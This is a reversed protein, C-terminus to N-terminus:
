FQAARLWDDILNKLADTRARWQADVKDSFRIEINRPHVLTVQCDGLNKPGQCLWLAPKNGPPPATEILLMSAGNRAGNRTQYGNLGPAVGALLGPAVPDHYQTALAAIMNDNAGPPAFRLRIMKEQSGLGIQKAMDASLIINVRAATDGVPLDGHGLRVPRFRDPIRLAIIQGLKDHMRIVPASQDDAAEAADARGALLLVMLCLAVAIKM